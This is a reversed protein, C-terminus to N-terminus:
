MSQVAGISISPNKQLKLAQASVEDVIGKNRQVVTDINEATIIESM